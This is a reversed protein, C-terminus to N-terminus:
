QKRQKNHAGMKKRLLDVPNIGSMHHVGMDKRPNRYYLLILKSHGGYTTREPPETKAIQLTINTTTDHLKLANATTM